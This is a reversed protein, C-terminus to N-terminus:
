ALPINTNDHCAGLSLPFGESSPYRTLCSGVSSTKVTDAVAVLRSNASQFPIPTACVSLTAAYLQAPELANEDISETAASSGEAGLDNSTAITPVKATAVHRVGAEVPLARLMVPYVSLKWPPPLEFVTSKACFATSCM